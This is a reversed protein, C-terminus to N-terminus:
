NRREGMLSLIYIFLNIIDLYLNLSAFVYDDISFQHKKHRGGVILQTDYIIYFCFIIVGIFSYLLHLWTPITSFMSFISVVLGFGMLGLLAGMLYPGLGTFDTKTFCAYCTLGAFVVVTTAVALLVSQTTYFATLFGVIVAECVTVILLFIYNTPFTQAAQPCCCGMGLIIGLSGFVALYYLAMHQRVWTPTLFLNFPAAIAVTLVLQFTLLSYVKRIFDRRVYAPAENIPRDGYYEDPSGEKSGWGAFVGEDSSSVSHEENFQAPRYPQSGQLYQNSTM